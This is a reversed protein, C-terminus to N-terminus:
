GANGKAIRAVLKILTPLRRKGHLTRLRAKASALDIGVCTVILPRTEDERMVEFQASLGPRATKAVGIVACRGGLAHHLHQGLGPTEQADLHVFGDIVIVEPELAHERLLQLLCPLDRLSPEGPTAREVHPMQSPGLRSTYIRVAEAADWAEFAVGAAVAGDADHHVAVALKM